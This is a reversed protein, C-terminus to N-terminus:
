QPLTDGPCRSNAETSGGDHRSGCGAREAPDARGHDLPYRGYPALQRQRQQAANSRTGPSRPEHDNEGLVLHLYGRIIRSDDDRTEILQYADGSFRYIMELYPIGYLPDDLLSEPVKVGWFLGWSGLLRKGRMVDFATVNDSYDLDSFKLAYKFVECFAEAIKPAINGERDLVEGTGRGLRRIDIIKSDGTIAEWERSLAERDIFADLLVVAHLHVHWGNGKNTTEISYVGGVAKQLETTSNGKLANRRKELLRRFSSVLHKFREELDPGNKITLTLMAPVLHPNDKILLAFREGYRQVNVSGRRAACFPCLLHKKCTHAGVLRVQNVTYYNRFLLWSACAHVKGAVEQLDPRHQQTAQIYSALAKARKRRQGYLSVRESHRSACNKSGKEHRGGFSDSLPKEKKDMTMEKLGHPLIVWKIAM